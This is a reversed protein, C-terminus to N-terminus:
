PKPASENSECGALERLLERIVDFELDESIREDFHDIHAGPKM